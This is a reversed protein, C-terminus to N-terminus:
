LSFPLCLGLECALKNAAKLQKPRYESISHTDSGISVGIGSERIRDRKSQNTLFDYYYSYNGSTNIEWFMNEARLVEVMDLGYRTGMNFIDCHALGVPCDFRHRWSVFEFFDMARYDDLSEFLVYDINKIDYTLLDDPKPRTGIELGALVKIHKSYKEKCEGIKKIYESVNSGLSFQHDTIGIVDIGHKIANEIIEEPTNKGDYSFNTHNHLDMIM